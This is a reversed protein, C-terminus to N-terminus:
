GGRSFNHFSQFGSAGPVNALQPISVSRPAVPRPGEWTGYSEADLLGQVDNTVQRMTEHFRDTKDKLQGAIKAAEASAEASIREADSRAAKVIQEAESRAAAVAAEAEAKADDKIKLALIESDLLAKAIIDANIEAKTGALKEVELNKYDNVLNNYKVCVGQYENYASQYAETLRRVYDDVQSKDYGNTQESFLSGTM